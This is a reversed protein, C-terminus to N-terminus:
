LPLRGRLLTEELIRRDPEAAQGDNTVDVWGARDRIWEGARLRADVLEAATHLFASLCEPCGVLRVVDDERERLVICAERDPTERLDVVPPPPEHRANHPMVVSIQAYM